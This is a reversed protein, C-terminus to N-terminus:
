FEGHERLLNLMSMMDNFAKERSKEDQPNFTFTTDPCDMRTVTKGVVKKIYPLNKSKFVLKKDKAVMFGLTYGISKDTSQLRITPYQGNESAEKLYLHIKGNKKSTEDLVQSYEPFLAKIENSLTHTQDAESLDDLRMKEEDDETLVVKGESSSGKKETDPLFTFIGTDQPSSSAVYTMTGDLFIAEHLYITSTEETETDHYSGQLVNVRAAQDDPSAISYSDALLNGETLSLGLLSYIVERYAIMEPSSLNPNIDDRGGMSELDLPLALDQKSAIIAAVMKLKESISQEFIELEQGHPENEAEAM